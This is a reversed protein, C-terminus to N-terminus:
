NNKPINNFPNASTTTTPKETTAETTTVTTTVEEWVQLAIKTGKKYQNNAPLSQEYITDVTHSGDNAKYVVSVIFGQEELKAKAEALTVGNFDALAITEVGRSITLTIIAGKDITSASPASQAMVLGAEVTDSFEYAFQLDFNENWKSTSKVETETYNLFNPVAIQEVSVTTTPPSLKGKIVGFYVGTGIAALLLVAAVVIVPINPKKKTPTNTPQPKETVVNESIPTIATKQRVEKKIPSTDVGSMVESPAASLQARLQEVTRTRDNPFIQLANGMANIVYAPIQEAFRGPIMLKDNISRTLADIPNNGILARYVTATFGYIDTWPGQQYENKYQEIAFYGPQDQFLMCTNKTNTEWISFNTLRLKGDKCVVLNTPSIARHIIGNNHLAIITSLVPMFLTRSKDWSIYGEPTRLLYDRLSIYEMYESVAFITGWQELIDYVPIIASLERMKGLSRWLNLYNQMCEQYEKSKGPSVVINNDGAIRTALNRPLFERVTVPSKQSIDFAMYMAYDSTHSIMKGVIYKNALVTRLPLYPYNQTTANDYGCHPCIQSDGLPKMCSMCIDYKQNM